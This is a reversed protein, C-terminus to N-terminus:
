WNNKKNDTIIELMGQCKSLIKIYYDNKVSNFLNKYDSMLLKSTPIILKM